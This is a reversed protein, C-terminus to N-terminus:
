AGPRRRPGDDVRDGQALALHDGHGIQTIAMSRDLQDAYESRLRDRHGIQTIAM